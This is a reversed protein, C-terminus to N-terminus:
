KLARRLSYTTVMKKLADGGQVWLGTREKLDRDALLSNEERKRKNM